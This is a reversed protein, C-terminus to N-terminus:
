KFVNFPAGFFTFPSKILIFSIGNNLALWINGQKDLYIYHTTNDRLGSKKNIHKIINGKNDIIIIGDQLTGLVFHENDVKEGCYIRNIKLFNNINQFGDPEVFVDDNKEGPSYIIIGHSRTVILIKGKEYPLMVYIRKNAFQEGQQVIKLSDNILTLLGTGWERVYFHKNVCFGAHYSNNSKLVVIKSEKLIFIYNDTRYIVQGNIVFTEWVDQFNRNEEPIKNLLSIYQTEGNSNAEIYGLEGDAGVYIRGISDIALSRVISKNPMKILRWNKGDFELLGNNNGFYMVGRRDQIVAWNQNEHSKYDKDSYDQIFPNGEEIYQQASLKNFSVFFLFLIYLLKNM